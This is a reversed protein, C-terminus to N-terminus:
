KVISKITVEEQQDWIDVVEVVVGSLEVTSCLNELAEKTNAMVFYAMKTSNDQGFRHTMSNSPLLTCEFEEVAETLESLTLGLYEPRHANLLIWRTANAIESQANAVNTTNM